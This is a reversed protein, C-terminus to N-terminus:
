AHEALARIIREGFAKWTFARAQVELKEGLARRAADPMTNIARFARSFDVLSFPDFYM